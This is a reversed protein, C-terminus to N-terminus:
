SLRKGESHNSSNDDQYYYYYDYHDHSGSEHKAKSFVTGIIHAQAQKLRSFADQISKKKAQGYAVVFITASAINSLILSDALGMVPPSDLLITDFKEYALNLLEEMKNNSLLEAPNPASPGASIVFLGEIDTPSTAAEADIQSTLYSTLGENNDINLRKHVSPKRIDCDILLVTKGAQCLTTALNIIISSKGESPTASTIHLSKPIGDQTSFLLNTRLSRIAEAMSSNPDNATLFAIQKEADKNDKIAPIQGLITSHVLREIEEPSKVTDDIFEILFALGIGSFLGFILGLALNLKVNPKHKMYPITAPDVISINNTGVSGAVGVEKMRQLLDNYLQRNTEVERNLTNYQISNDKFDMYAVKQLTLKKRLADEKQKAALYDGKLIGSAAQKSRKAEQNIENDLEKIRGKLQIMLPYAPKYVGLKEQYEAQIKVKSEKLTQIVPNDQISITENSNKTQNYKSEANIREKEADALASNLASLTQSTLSQGNNNEDSLTIIKRKKAYQVLEAESEQLRSKVQVLQEKLFNEAYSAADVRRNLNMNIFEEALTNTIDAALEPDESDYHLKVIRSKKVPSITLNDLFSLEIPREGLKKKPQISNDSSNKQLIEQVWKTATEITEAFFPKALKDEELKRDLNLTDIVHKALAQSKLLEYQTQYFDKDNSRSEQTGVDYSLVKASDEPNIQITTSARYIPTMLLTVILTAIFIFLATTIITTKRRRIVNWLERLDIEDDDLQNHTDTYMAQMNNNAYSLETGNVNAPHNTQKTALTNKPHTGNHM